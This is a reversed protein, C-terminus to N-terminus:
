RATTCQPILEDLNLNRQKFKKVTEGDHLSNPATTLFELIRNANDHLNQCDGDSDSRSFYIKADGLWTRYEDSLVSLSEATKKLVSESGLARIIIQLFHKLKSQHPILSIKEQM